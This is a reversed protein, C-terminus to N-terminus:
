ICKINLIKKYLKYYQDSILKSNFEKMIYDRAKIAKEKSEDKNEYHWLVAECIKQSDGPPVLSANNGKDAIEGLGGVNTFVCPCEMAMAEIASIGLGENLSPQVYVNTQSLMKKIDKTELFGLLFIRNKYSHNQIKELIRYRIGDDRGIIFLKANPIKICIKEFADVLYDIGKVPHLRGVCTINFSDTIVKDSDVFINDLPNYIRICKDENTYNSKVLHEKVANSIAVVSNNFRLSLDEMIYLLNNKKGREKYHRTTIIPVGFIIGFFRGILGAQVLHTHFILKSKNNSNILARLQSFIKIPNKGLLITKVGLSDFDDKLLEPGQLYALTFKIDQNGLEKIIPLLVHNAGGRNCNNTIHIVHIGM